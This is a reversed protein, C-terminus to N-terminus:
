VNSKEVCGSQPLYQDWSTFWRLGAHRSLLQARVPAPPSYSTCTDYLTDHRQGHTSGISHTISLLLLFPHPQPSNRECHLNNRMNVAAVRQMWSRGSPWQLLWPHRWWSCPFHCLTFDVVPVGVRLEEVKKGSCVPLTAVSRLVVQLGVNPHVVKILKLFFLLHSVSPM